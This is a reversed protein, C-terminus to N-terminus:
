VKETKVLDFRNHAREWRKIIDPCQCTRIEWFTQGHSKSDHKRTFFSLHEGYFHDVCVLDIIYKDGTAKEILHYDHYKHYATDLPNGEINFGTRRDYREGFDKHTPLPTEPNKENYLLRARRVEVYHDHDMGFGAKVDDPNENRTLIRSRIM